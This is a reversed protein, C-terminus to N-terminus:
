FDFSDKDAKRGGGKSNNSQASQGDETKVSLEFVVSEAIGDAQEQTLKNSSVMDALRSHDAKFLSIKAGKEITQLVDLYFKDQLINGERDKSRRVRAVTNWKAM